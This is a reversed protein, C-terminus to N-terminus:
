DEVRHATEPSFAPLCISWYVAEETYPNAYQVTSGARVLLSEGANLEITTGNVVVRKTGSVMLTYEDFEPTQVPESWGAPAKMHAISIETTSTAVKGFHELIIKGDETPFIQPSTQHVFDM